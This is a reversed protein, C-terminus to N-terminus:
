YKLKYNIKIYKLNNRIGKKLGNIYRNLQSSSLHYQKSVESSTGRFVEENTNIDIVKINKKIFELKEKLREISLPKIYEKEFNTYAFEGAYYRAIADYVVAADKDTKYRGLNYSKYNLKIQAEYTNNETKYVGKYISTKNFHKVPVNFSNQQQTCERINHKQNDLGNRNIHDCQFKTNLIFQHMPLQSGLRIGEDRTRRDTYAYDTLVGKVIYWKYKSVREYDEDDIFAVKGQSLKIEKM